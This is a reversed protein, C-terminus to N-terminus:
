DRERELRARLNRWRMTVDHADGYAIFDRYRKHPAPPHEEHQIPCWFQETKSAIELAYALVGNAYSCYRCNLRQLRNLYALKHRDFRMYRAREVQPIRWLRFCVAQYLSVVADLAGLPALVLYIFPTAILNLALGPARYEGAGAKLTATM